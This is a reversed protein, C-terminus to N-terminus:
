ESSNPDDDTTNRTRLFTRIAPRDHFGELLGTPGVITPTTRVGLAIAEARLRGVEADWRDIDLVAKTETLDLGAARGIEVLVDVRGIDSGDLMYARFVADRIESGRGEGAHAVLEHAKRTWPVLDPPAFPLDSLVRAESWRAALDEDLELNTLPTPPPRLEFPIWTEDSGSLEEHLLFSLPDVFDFYVLPRGGDSPLRM